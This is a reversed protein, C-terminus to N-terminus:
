KRKINVAILGSIGGIIMGFLLDTISTLGITLTNSLLSFIFYALIAYLGGILLGKIFGKNSGKLAIICGILISIIKIGQNIPIILFDSVNAFRIIIAFIIILVMSIVLSFITGKAVDLVFSRKSNDATKEM